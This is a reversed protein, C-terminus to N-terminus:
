QLLDTEKGDNDVEKYDIDEIEIEAKYKEYLRKIEGELNPIPKIGLVSPDSTPEISVPIIEDWPLEEGDDQDLKNYKGLAKIAEIREKLRGEEKADQIALKLEENVMYRYWEKGAARINPLFIKIDSIDRYAQSESIKFESMLADRLKNDQLSPSELLKSFCFRFRLIMNRDSRSLEPIKMLIAIEDLDEFLFDKFRELNSKKSM